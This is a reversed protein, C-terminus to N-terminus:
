ITALFEEIKVIIEQKPLYNVALLTAIVSYFFLLSYDTKKNDDLGEDDDEDDENDEEEDENDENDEDDEDDEEPDSDCYESDDSSYYREDDILSKTEPDIGNQIFTIQKVIEIYENTKKEDIAFITNFVDKYKGNTIEAFDVERDFIMVFKIMVMKDDNDRLKGVITYTTNKFDLLRRYIGSMNNENTIIGFWFKSTTM